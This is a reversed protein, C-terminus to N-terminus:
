VYKEWWAYRRNIYMHTIMLYIAGLDMIGGILFCKDLELVVATRGRFVASEPSKTNGGM